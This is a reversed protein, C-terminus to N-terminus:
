SAKMNSLRELFRKTLSGVEWKTLSELLEKDESTLFTSVERSEEPKEQQVEEAV